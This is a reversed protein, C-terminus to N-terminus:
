KRANANCAALQDEPITRTGSTYSAIEGVAKALKGCERQAPQDTGQEGAKCVDAECRWTRADIVVKRAQALPAALKAEAPPILDAWALQPVAGAMLGAATMAILLRKMM